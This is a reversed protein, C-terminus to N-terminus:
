RSVLLSRTTPATARQALLRSLGRVIAELGNFVPEAAWISALLRGHSPIRESVCHVHTSHRPLFLCQVPGTRCADNERSVAPACRCRQGQVFTTFARPLVHPCYLSPMKYERVYAALTTGQQQSVYVGNAFTRPCRYSVLKCLQEAITPDGSDEPRSELACAAPGRAGSSITDSQGSASQGTSCGSCSVWLRVRTM